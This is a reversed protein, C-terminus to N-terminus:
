NFLKRCQGPGASKALLGRLVKFRLAKNGPGIMWDEKADPTYHEDMGRGKTFWAFDVGRLSQTPTWAGDFAKGEADIYLTYEVPTVTHMKGEAVQKKTPGNSEAIGIEGLTFLETNVVLKHVAKAGFQNQEARNLAQPASVQRKYGIVSENWIESGLHTDIVFAKKKTALYYRLTLDFAAANPPAESVNDGRSPRGLDSYKDAYFFSAGALAKLDSPEFRIAIGDPNTVTIAQTPEAVSFGAARIGNCFGEWDAPTMDRYPGRHILEHQTVSFKYDGVFLDYKEAPSLTNLEQPTLRAVEAADPFHDDIRVHEDRQWRNAIGGKYMAFYNGAWPARKEPLIFNAPGVLPNQFDWLERTSFRSQELAQFLGNFDNAYPTPAAFASSAVTLSLLSVLFSAAPKKLLKKM